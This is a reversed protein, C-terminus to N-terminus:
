VCLGDTTGRWCVGAVAVSVLEFVTSARMATPPLDGLPVPRGTVFYRAGAISDDGFDEGLYQEVVVTSTVGDSPETAFVVTRTPSWPDPAEADVVMQALEHMSGARVPEGLEGIIRDTEDSPETVFLLNRSPAWGTVGDVVVELDIRDPETLRRAEGTAVVGDTLPPLEAVLPQDDGPLLRVALREDHGIGVVDLVSGEQAYPHEWPDGPLITTTTTPEGAPTTSTMVTDVAAPDDTSPAVVRAGEPARTGCAGAVLVLAVAAATRVLVALRM